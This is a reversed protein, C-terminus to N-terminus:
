QDRRKQKPHLQELDAAGDQPRQDGRFPNRHGATAVAWAPDGTTGGGPFWNRWRSPVERLGVALAIVAGQVILQVSSAAGMGLVVQQLQTLFLAGVATAVVSGNGGLLSTGGLVVAAVTPLLYDGGASISSNQLFGALLVGAAGYCISAVVYTGLQYSRVPIGAARAAQASAGVAVFRRGFTTKRILFTVVLVVAGVLLVTNPIGATKDLTFGSLNAPATKTSLGGTIQQITGLLLANVGLTAVLPTIGFYTVAVGSVLGTAACALLVLCLAPLLRSDHGAAHATVIVAALSMTGPVALDLGRQQVVLTQGVSALALVAAFPLMGLIASSSLSGAALLPSLGFLLATAPWIPFFPKDRLSGVVSSRRGLPSPGAARGMDATSM